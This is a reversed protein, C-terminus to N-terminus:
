TSIGMSLDKGAMEMNLLDKLSVRIFVTKISTFEREMSGIWSGVVKMHIAKPLSGYVMDTKRGWNGIEKLFKDMIGCSSATEMGWVMSSSESTCVTLTEKVVQCKSVMKTFVRSYKSRPFLCPKVMNRIMVKLKVLIYPTRISSYRSTIM